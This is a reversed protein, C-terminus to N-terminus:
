LGIVREFRCREVNIAVSLATGALRVDEFVAGGIDAGTLDADLLSVGELYAGRLDAGSLNAGDLVTQEVHLGDLLAQSLDVGRMSCGTIHSSRRWRGVTTGGVEEVGRLM